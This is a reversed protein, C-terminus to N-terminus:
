RANDHPLQVEARKTQRSRQLYGVGTRYIVCKSYLPKDSM